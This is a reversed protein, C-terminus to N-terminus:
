GLCVGRAAGDEAVAVLDDNGGVLMALCCHLQGLLWQNLKDAEDCVVAEDCTRSFVAESRM